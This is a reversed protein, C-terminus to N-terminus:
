AASSERLPWTVPFGPLPEFQFRPHRHRRLKKSVAPPASLPVYPDDSGLTALMAGLKKAAQVAPQTIGLRRGIAREQEYGPGPQSLDWARRAFRVKQPLDFLDVVLRRRLHQAVPELCTLETEQGGFELDLQARLVVRGEGLLQHPVVVIRPALERLLRGFEPSDVALTTLAGRVRERLEEIPPLTLQPPPTQSAKAESDRLEELEWEAARLAKLLAPSGGSNGIADTLREIKAAQQGIQARVRIRQADQRQTYAALEAAVSSRLEGAFDPLAELETLIAALLKQATREADITVSNWCHYDKTGACVLQTRGKTKTYHLLRGCCGCQLHQGPWVTRKRPMNKRPDVGERVRSRAANRQHLLRQVRDFRAPKIFALHPCDRELLEKPPADIIKRRGTSNVRKSIKRNRIRLGKLIPNQSIRSVMEATWRPGRTFPGVPVNQSNLWDAVEAYSAGQELKTFWENYIAQAAPDKQLESDHKAGPPKIYGYIVFQVAAGQSFRNRLTRRIRKGTDANYMEHRLAAFGASMRWGEQATDVQDNIAVVRCDYDEALECFDLARNRRFIRGLDEALVLDVKRSEVLEEARATEQRDLREGSGTGSIVTVDVPQEIHEHLWRRLMAEQDDLSRIDQKGEGPSSVRCILLVRLPRPSHSIPSTAHLVTM